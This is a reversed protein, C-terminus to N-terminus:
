RERSSLPRGADNTIAGVWEGSAWAVTLMALSPLANWFVRWGGAIRPIRRVTRLIMLPPVAPAVAIIKWQSAGRLIRFRAFHRGHRFRHKLITTLKYSRGYHVEAGEVMVLRGGVERLREHLDIEWFGEEAADPYLDLAVRAYAANDGPIDPVEGRPNAPTFTSYRLLYIARDLPTASEDLAIPGAAGGAGGAIASALAAVWSPGVRFHGTTFAVARGRSAGLGAGWLDPVLPDGEVPIRRPNFSAPASREPPPDFSPYCVLVEVSRGECAVEVSRLCVDLFPECDLCAIVISLDVDTAEPGM